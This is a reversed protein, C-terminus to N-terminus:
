EHVNSAHIRKALSHMVRPFLVREHCLRDAACNNQHPSQFEVGTNRSILIRLTVLVLVPPPTADDSLQASLPGRNM